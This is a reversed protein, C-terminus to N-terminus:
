RGHAGPFFSTPFAPPPFSLVRIALGPGGPTEEVRLGGAGNGERKERFIEPPPRSALYPPGPATPIFFVLLTAHFNTKKEFFVLAVCFKKHTGVVGGNRAVESLRRNCRWAVPVFTEAGGRGGGDGRRQPQPTNTFPPHASSFSPIKRACSPCRHTRTLVDVSTLLLVVAFM